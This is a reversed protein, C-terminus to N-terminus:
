RMVTIYGWMSTENGQMSTFKLEYLYVGIPSPNGSIDHGNWGSYMDNTEFIMMGERNYIVMSFENPDISISNIIFSDNLGDNNPSVGQFISYNEWGIM